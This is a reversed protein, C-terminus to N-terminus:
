FESLRSRLRLALQVPNLDGAIRLRAEHEAVLIRYGENRVLHPVRLSWMFAPMSETCARQAFHFLLLFHTYNKSDQHKGGHEEAEKEEHEVTIIV